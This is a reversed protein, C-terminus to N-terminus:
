AKWTPCQKSASDCCVPRCRDQEQDLLALQPVADPDGITRAFDSDEAVPLDPTPISESPENIRNRRMKSLKQPLTDSTGHGRFWQLPRSPNHLNEQSAALGSSSDLSLDEEVPPKQAARAMPRNPAKGPGTFRRSSAPLPGKGSGRSGRKPTPTSGKGFRSKRTPIPKRPSAGAGKGGSLGQEQAISANPLTPPQPSPSSLSADAVIAQHSSKRSASGRNWETAMCLFRTSGTRAFPPNSSQLLNRDM